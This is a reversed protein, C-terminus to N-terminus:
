QHVCGELEPESPSSLSGSSSSCNTAAVRPACRWGHLHQLMAFRRRGDGRGRPALGPAAVLSERPAQRQAGGPLCEAELDKEVSAGAWRLAMVVCIACICVAAFLAIVMGVIVHTELMRRRPPSETRHPTHDEKKTADRMRIAAGMWFRSESFISGRPKALVRSQKGVSKM